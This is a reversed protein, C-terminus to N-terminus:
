RKWVIGQKAANHSALMQEHRTMENWNSPRTQEVRGEPVGPTHPEVSAASKNIQKVTEKIQEVKSLNATVAQYAAEMYESTSVGQAPSFRQMWKLMAPEHKDFDTHTSKFAKLEGDTEAAVAKSIIETQQTAIPKLQKQFADNIAKVFPQFLPRLEEPLAQIAETVEAPVDLKAPTDQKGTVSKGLQQALQELAQEPNTTLGEILPKWQEFEKAQASLAQSKQTLKAQWKQAQEREKPSLKALEDATLITDESETPAQTEDAVKEPEQSPQTPTSTEDAPAPTEAPAAEASLQARAAAFAAKGTAPPATETSVTEEVNTSMFRERLSFPGGGGHM